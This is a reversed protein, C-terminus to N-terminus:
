NIRAAVDPNRSPFAQEFEVAGIETRKGRSMPQRRIIHPRGGFIIAPSYPYRSSGARCDEFAIAYNRELPLAIVRVLL